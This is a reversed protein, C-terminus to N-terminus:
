PSHGSTGLAMRARVFDVVRKVCLPFAALLLLTAIVEGSLLDTLSTIRGIHTGANVLVVTGLFMGLQSVLMYTATSISTLGMVLNIVFFPSIPLLRLSFLYYVGNKEMGADIADLQSGFRRRVADRCMYRAVLFPLTAALTSAVSVLATGLALGFLDGAVVTMLLTGPLSLAALALYIAIFLSLSLALHASCYSHIAAREANFYDLTFYGDLDLAFFLVLCGLVAIAFCLKSKNM